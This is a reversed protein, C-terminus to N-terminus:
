AVELLLPASAPAGGLAQRWIAQRILTVQARLRLAYLLVSSAHVPDQRAVDRLRAIRAALLADDAVVPDGGHRRLTAGLAGGLLAALAALMNEPSDARAADALRDLPVRGGPHLMALVEDHKVRTALQLVTRVNELDITEEVWARLDHGAHRATRRLAQLHATALAREAGFLDPEGVPAAALLPAGLPHLWSVLLSAISPVRAQRALERLLREPLRPTPILGAMRLEAAAGAAAGRVMARVSRRDEDGFILDALEPQAPLWRGLRGLEAAAWRRAALELAEHTGVHAPIPLGAERLIHALTEVDSASLARDLTARPLLHTALGRARAAVATLGVTTM